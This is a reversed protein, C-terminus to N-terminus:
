SFNAKNLISTIRSGETPRHILIKQQLAKQNDIRLLLIEKIM